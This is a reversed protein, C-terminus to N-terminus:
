LKPLVTFNYVLGFSLSNPKPTCPIIAQLHLPSSSAAAPLVKTRAAHIANQPM